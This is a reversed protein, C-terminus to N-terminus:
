EFPQGFTIQNGEIDLVLFERLGWPQSVPDGQVRAGRRRLEAHLEDADHVYAYASGIGKHQETRAVLLLRVDDRDMVALDDQEYNVTFGLANRYYDVGSQVDSLPLGPMMKELLGPPPPQDPEAFSQGFWLVHGDPDRVEFVRMKIGNVRQLPSPSGGRTRVAAHLGEVNNTEFFVVASGPQPDERGDPGYEHPGFHIRAPGSRVELANPDTESRAVDFGLIDRYFALTRDVDAAGLFQSVPSVIAFESLRDGTVAPM